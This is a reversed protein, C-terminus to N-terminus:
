ESAASKLYFLSTDSNPEGDITANVEFLTLLAGSLDDHSYTQNKQAQIKKVDIHSATSWSMLPVHNQADPAFVYPLGHLYLGNEGLSEGHDSIYLMTTEYQESNEELLSITEALFHDTYRIANDYANIIENKSCKSLEASQCAPTFFEFSQPYRKFYAPGHNGMQHLVILTDQTHQDIYEQLGVLMGVDRCEIDCITNQESSRYSQYPLRNAVGKSSSNNDLWRVRVGSTALVDLANETYKAEDLDFDDRGSFSFMCPVSVATSTGCSSVQSFNILGNQRSMNPTTDRSYGNLPLHDARVTEGVVMIMLKPKATTSVKQINQARTIFGVEGKFALSSAVFDVASYIPFLPNTYYRLPKHSRIFNIYEASFPAILAPIFIFIAGISIIQNRLTHLRTKSKVKVILLLSAPLAALLMIHLCMGLNVIEKAEAPNTEVINLIMTKDILVGLAVAYYDVVATILLMTVVVAKAPIVLNVLLMLLINLSVLLLALSAIFGLNEQWPYVANLKEFFVTNAVIVIFVSSLSFLNFSSIAISNKLQTLKTRISYGNSLLPMFDTKQM